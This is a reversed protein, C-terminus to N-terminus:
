STVHFKQLNRMSGSPEMAVMYEEAIEGRSSRMNSQALSLLCSNDRPYFLARHLKSINIAMIIYLSGQFILVDLTLEGMSHQKCARGSITFQGDGNSESLINMTNVTIVIIGAPNTRGTDLDPVQCM